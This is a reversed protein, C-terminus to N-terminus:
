SLSVTATASPVFADDDDVRDRADDVGTVTLSLVHQRSIQDQSMKSSICATRAAELGTDVPNKPNQLVREIGCPRCM